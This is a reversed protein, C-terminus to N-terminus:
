SKLPAVGLYKVSQSQQLIQDALVLPSYLNYNVKKCDTTKNLNLTLRNCCLWDFIDNLHNNVESLLKDLDNGSATLSTDDAYLLCGSANAFDNIFILSLLPGLISGQPVGSSIKNLESM